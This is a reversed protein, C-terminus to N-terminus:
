NGKIKNSRGEIRMHLESEVEYGTEFVFNGSMCIQSLASRQCAQVICKGEAGIKKKYPYLNLLPGLLCKSRAYANIRFM